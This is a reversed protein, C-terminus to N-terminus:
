TYALHIYISRFVVHVHMHLTFMWSTHFHRVEEDQLIDFTAYDAQLEQLIAVTQRSFGLKVIYMLIIVLFTGCRPEEPNGKMFLM